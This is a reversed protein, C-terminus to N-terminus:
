TRCIKRLSFALILLFVGLLVAFAAASLVFVLGTIHPRALLLAGLGIALLGGLVMSREGGFDRRLRVGTLISMLGWLLASIALFYVVVNLTLMATAAPHLLAVIGALISLIGILIGTGWRKFYRMGRLSVLLVFIGDLVFFVGLIQVLLVVTARTRTLLLIGLILAAMGRLLVLWWIDSCIRQRPTKELQIEVM